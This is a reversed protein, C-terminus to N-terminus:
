WIAERITKSLGYVEAQHTSISLPSRGEAARASIPTGNWLFIYGDQSTRKEENGYSADSYGVLEVKIGTNKKFVLRCDLTGKIYRLCKKLLKM